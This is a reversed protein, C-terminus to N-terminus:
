AAACVVVGVGDGVGALGFTSLAASCFANRSSTAFRSFTGRSRSSAAILPAASARISAATAAPRRVL